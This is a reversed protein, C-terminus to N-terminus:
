SHFNQVTTQKQSLRLLEERIAKILSASSHGPQLDETSSTTYCLGQGQLNNHPLQAPPASPQRASTRPMQFVPSSSYEQHGHMHMFSLNHELLFILYLSYSYYTLISYPSLGICSCLHLNELLTGATSGVPRPRAVSPMEESYIGRSSYQVEPPQQDPHMLEAPQLFGPGFNQRHFLSSKG